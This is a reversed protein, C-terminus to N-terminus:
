LLKSPAKVGPSKQLLGRFLNHVNSIEQYLIKSGHDANLGTESCVASVLATFAMFSKQVSQM